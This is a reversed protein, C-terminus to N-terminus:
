GHPNEERLIIILLNKEEIVKQLKNIENKLRDAENNIKLNKGFINKYQKKLSNYEKDLNEVKFLLLNKQDELDVQKKKSNNIDINLNKIKKDYNIKEENRITEENTIKEENIKKNLELVLSSLKENLKILNNIEQKFKDIQIDRFIIKQDKEFIKLELDEVSLNIQPNIIENESPLYLNSPPPENFNVLNFYYLYPLILIVFIFFIFINRKKRRARQGVFGIM